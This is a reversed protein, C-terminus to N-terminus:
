TTATTTTTAMSPPAMEQSEEYAIERAVMEDHLPHTTAEIVAAEIRGLMDITHGPLRQIDAYAVRLAELLKPAANLLAIARYFMEEDDPHPRNAGAICSAQLHMGLGSFKGDERHFDSDAALITNGSDLRFAFNSFRPKLKIEM